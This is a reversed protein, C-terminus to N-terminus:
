RLLTDLVVASDRLIVHLAVVFRDNWLVDEKQHLLLKCSSPKHMGSLITFPAAVGAIVTKGLHNEATFATFEEPANVPVVTAAFGDDPLAAAPQLGGAVDAMGPRDVLLDQLFHGNLGDILHEAFLIVEQFGQLGVDGRHDFLSIGQRRFDDIFAEPLQLLLEYLHRILLVIVVGDRIFDEPEPIHSFLGLDVAHDLIFLHTQDLVQLIEDMLLGGGNCLKVLRQDLAQDRLNRDKLIM